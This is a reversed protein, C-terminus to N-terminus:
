RGQEDDRSMALVACILVGFIGGMVFGILWMM